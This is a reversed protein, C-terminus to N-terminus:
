REKKVFSAILPRHDSAEGWDPMRLVYSGPREWERAMGPSILIYDIRSYTDERAFHYTWAIVRRQGSAPHAPDNEWRESPRTDVLASRGRGLITRLVRSDITDNFDGLVILNASPRAKLRADIKERLIIAEQERLDAQDAFGVPRRSKLHGNFLTFTYQANVQIDV